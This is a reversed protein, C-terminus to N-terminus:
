VIENKHKEMDHILNIAPQEISADTTNADNKNIFEMCNSIDAAKYIESNSADIKGYLLNELISYNFIIPEQMVLSVIKRLSHLDYDKLNVGDLLIEGHDPDYFRM